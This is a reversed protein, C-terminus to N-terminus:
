RQRMIMTMMVMMTGGLKDCAGDDDDDNTGGLKDCAGDDYEDHCRMSGLTGGWNEAGRGLSFVDAGVSHRFRSRGGWGGAERARVGGDTM